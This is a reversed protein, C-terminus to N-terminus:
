AHCMETHFHSFMITYTKPTNASVPELITGQAKVMDGTHGYKIHGHEKHKQSASIEFGNLWLSYDSLFVVSGQWM